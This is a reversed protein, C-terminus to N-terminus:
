WKVKPGHQALMVNCSLTLYSVLVGGKWGVVYWVPEAVKYEWGDWESEVIYDQHAVVQQLFMSDCIKWRDAPKVVESEPSWNLKNNQGRKSSRLVQNWWRM